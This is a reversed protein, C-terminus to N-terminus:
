VDDCSVYFRVMAFLVAFDKMHGVVRNVVSVLEPYHREFAREPTMHKIVDDLLFNVERKQSKPPLLSPLTTLPILVGVHVYLM